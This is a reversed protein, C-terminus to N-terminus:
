ETDTSSDDTTEPEVASQVVSPEEGLAKAVHKDSVGAVRLAAAAERYLIEGDRVRRAVTLVFEAREKQAHWERIPDHESM